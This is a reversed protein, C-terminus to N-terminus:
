QAFVYSTETVSGNQWKGEWTVSYPIGISGSASQSSFEATLTYVPNPVVPFRLTVTWGASQYVYTEAGLPNTEQKGVTWALNNLFQAADNHNAKIYAAAADRIDERLTLRPMTTPPDQSTAQAQKASVLAWSIGGVIALITIFVLASQLKPHAM